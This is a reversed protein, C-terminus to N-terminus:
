YEVGRGSGMREINSMIRSKGGSISRSLNGPPKIGGIRSEGISSPAKLGSPRLMSKRFDEVVAPTNNPVDAQLALMEDVAAVLEGKEVRERELDALVVTYDERASRVEQELGALKARQKELETSQAEIKLKQEELRKMDAAREATSLDSPLVGSFTADRGMQLEEMQKTMDGIKRQLEVCKKEAKAEYSKKLAAVKTEHKKKYVVHLEKCLTAVKDDIQKQVQEATFRPSHSGEEEGIFAQTQDVIKSEAEVARQDAEAARLEADHARRESEELRRILEERERENSMIEGKISRLVEEVENGRKVWDAKEKEADERASQEMRANEQAEGARRESDTVAKKLSEVEAEKGNLTATLSSIQSQYSSKMSELERVTITPVSRPTPAPPLEFDLLNLINRKESPTSPLTHKGPSRQNSIYSLLSPGSHSKSPSHRRTKSPTARASYSFSEMQQTFDLLLNTTDSDAKYGNTRRPTPSPSGNFDDVQHRRSTGPTYFAASRPTRTQATDMNFTKAPSGQGLRAFQTMDANPIESFASFCTDDINTQEDIQEDYSTSEHYRFEEVVTEKRTEVINREDEMMKIAVTLGENERLQEVQENSSRKIPSQRPRSSKIPSLHRSALRPTAEVISDDQFIDVEAARDIATTPPTTSVEPLAETQLSLKVPSRQKPPSQTKIPKSATPPANEQDIEAVFPSSPPDYHSIDDDPFDGVPKSDPSANASFYDVTKAATGPTRNLASNSVPSFPILDEM